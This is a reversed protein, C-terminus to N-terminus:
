DFIFRFMRFIMRPIFLIIRLIVDVFIPGIFEEFIVDLFSESEKEDQKKKKRKQHQEASM